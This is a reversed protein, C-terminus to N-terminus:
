VRYMQNLFVKHVNDDNGSRIIIGNIGEPNECQFPKNIDKLHPYAEVISDFDSYDKAEAYPYNETTKEFYPASYFQKKSQNYSPQM